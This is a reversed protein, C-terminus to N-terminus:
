PAALDGEISPLFSAKLKVKAHQEFAYGAALVRQESWAPGIFSIGLPLRQVHGMPVTLYPYGAVAPLTSFSGPFQDGNIVDLRWATGTTPAVLLDLRNERLMKDIGEAGALRKSAELAHIYAAQTLGETENAKTFTEQGFWRLERPEHANFEILRALSRTTVEAPLSMLYANLDSKFETHLVVDEADYIPAMSPMELEVLIAGAARLVALARDYVPAIQPQRPNKFRVVGLRMGRLADPVLGQVYRADSVTVMAELLLAVGRVSTGMPGATDQSHAIPVIHDTPLLGVTPKLGVIGNMAAPCTISGDTETGLSAPAFGAAVGVASGASSGCPSRDLVHANKTFGGVASWGSISHESRSNAWESLNTKGLIIAGAARLKAVIPADRATLNAELALSGATTPIPDATEINDKVLVPIGHLPGRLRGDRRERDLTRAHGLADPNIAIVAGLQPGARDLAEIRALYGKVLKESSTQGSKLAAQLDEISQDQLDSHPAGRSACGSLALAAM